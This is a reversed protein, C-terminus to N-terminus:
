PRTQAQLPPVIHASGYSIRFPSSVRAARCRCSASSNAQRVPQVFMDEFDGPITIEAKAVTLGRRQRDQLYVRICKVVEHCDISEVPTVLLPDLTGPHHNVTVTIKAHRGPTVVLAHSQTSVAVGSDLVVLVTVSKYTLLLDDDDDDDNDDDNDNASHQKVFNPGDFYNIIM